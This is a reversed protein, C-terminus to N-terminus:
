PLRRREFLESAEVLYSLALAARVEAPAAVQEPLASGSGMGVCYDPQLRRARAECLAFRPIRKLRPAFERDM